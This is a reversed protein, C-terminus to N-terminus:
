EYDDYETDKAINRNLWNELDLEKCLDPVGFEYGPIDKQEERNIQYETKYGDELVIRRVPFGKSLLDLYGNTSMYRLKVNSPDIVSLLYFYKDWSFQGSVDLLPSIWCDELKRGNVSVQYRTTPKGVAKLTDHVETIAMTDSIPIVPAGIKEIEEMYAARASEREKEPIEQLLTELRKMKLDRLGQIYSDVTGRYYVLNVPDVLVIAGTKLNFTYILDYQEFKVQYDQIFWRQLITKGERDIYRGTLVWGAHLGPIFTLFALTLTLIARRIRRIPVAPLSAGNNGQVPTLTFFSAAM